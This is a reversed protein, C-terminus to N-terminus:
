NFNLRKMAIPHKCFSYLKLCNGTRKGLPEKNANPRLHTSIEEITAALQNVRSSKLHIMRVKFNQVQSLKSVFIYKKFTTVVTYFYPTPQFPKDYKNLTRGKKKHSAEYFFDGSSIIPIENPSLTVCNIRDIDVRSDQSFHIQWGEGGVKSTAGQKWRKNRNLWRNWHLDRRSKSGNMPFMKGNKRKAQQSKKV